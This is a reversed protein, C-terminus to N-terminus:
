RKGALIRYVGGQSTPVYAGSDHLMLLYDVAGCPLGEPTSSELRRWAEAHPLFTRIWGAVTGARQWPRGPALECLHRVTRDRFNLRDWHAPHETWRGREGRIGLPEDLGTAQGSLVQEVAAGLEAAIDEPLERAVCALRLRRLLRHPSTM